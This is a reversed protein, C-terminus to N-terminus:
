CSFFERSIICANWFYWALISYQCVLIKINHDTDLLLIFSPSSFGLNETPSFLSPDASNRCSSYARSFLSTQLPEAQPTLVYFSLSLSLDASTRCSSYARSFVSLSLDASTRCSSYARLFLSLSIQLLGANPTSVHLMIM